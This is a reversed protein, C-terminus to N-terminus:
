SAPLSSGRADGCPDSLRSRKWDNISLMATEVTICWLHALRHGLEGEIRMREVVSLSIHLPADPSAERPLAEKFLCSVFEVRLIVADRLKHQPPVSGGTFFAFASFSFSLLLFLIFCVNGCVSDINCQQPSHSSKRRTSTSCAHHTTLM